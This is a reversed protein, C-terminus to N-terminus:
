QEGETVATRYPNEGDAVNPEDSMRRMARSHGSTYGRDWAAAQIPRVSQQVRDSYGIIQNSLRRNLEELESIREQAADHGQWWAYAAPSDDTWAGFEKHEHPEAVGATVQITTGCENCPHVFTDTM